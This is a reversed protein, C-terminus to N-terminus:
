KKTHSFVRPLSDSPFGEVSEKSSLVLSLGRKGGPSNKRACCGYGKDANNMVDALAIGVFVSERSCIRGTFFASRELGM